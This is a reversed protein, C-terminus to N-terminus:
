ILIRQHQFYKPLSTKLKITEFTIPQVNKKPATSFLIEFLSIKESAVIVPALNVQSIATTNTPMNQSCVLVRCLYKADAKRPNKSRAKNKCCKMPCVNEKMGMDGSQHNTLECNIDLIENINLPRHQTMSNKYHVLGLLPLPFKPDTLLKMHLPFAMIHPFTAPLHSKSKFGCVQGYQRLRKADVKVGKLDVSLSPIDVHTSTKKPLAARSLLALVNPSESLHMTSIPNM